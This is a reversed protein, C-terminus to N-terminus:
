YTEFCNHIAETKYIRKIEHNKKKDLKDKHERELRKFDSQLTNLKKQKIKQFISIQCNNNREVFSQLCGM